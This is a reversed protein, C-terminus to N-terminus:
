FPITIFGFVNIYESSCPVGQTCPKIEAFGPVKARLLAMHIDITWHNIVTPSNKLMLIM